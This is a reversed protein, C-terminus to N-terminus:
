EHEELAPVRIRKQRWHPSTTCNLAQLVPRSVDEMKKGSYRSTLATQSRSPGIFCGVHRQSALINTAGSSQGILTTSDPDGGFKKVNRRLFRCAEQTHLLGYNGSVNGRHDAAALERASLFGFINLRYAVSVAVVGDSALGSMNYWSPKGQTNDGGHLLVVVPLLPMRATSAVAPHAPTWINLYLCDESGTNPQAGRYQSGLRM